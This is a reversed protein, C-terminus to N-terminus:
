GPLRNWGSLAMLQLMSGPCFLHSPLFEEELIVDVGTFFVSLEPFRGM